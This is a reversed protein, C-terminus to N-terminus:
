NRVEWGISVEGTGPVLNIVFSGGQPVANIIRATSDNNRIVPFVTSNVSCLSCTVTVSSNGAAVNVTGFAKNITQNGTTGAPTITQDTFYQRVKVDRYAGATGNNAEIVGAANRGWATDVTGGAGAGAVTASSTWGYVGSSYLSLIASNSTFGLPYSVVGASTINVLALGGNVNSTRSDVQLGLGGIGTDQRTPTGGQSLFMNVGLVGMPTSSVEFKQLNLGGTSVAGSFNFKALGLRGTGIGAGLTVNLDGGDANGSANRAANGTTLAISGGAAAGAVSSGAVAASATLSAAIGAQATTIAAPATATFAAAVGAGTLLATNIAVSALNSLAANAGSASVTQWSGDDRLYKTGDPTGTIALKSIAISGALMANTVKGSGIATAFSGTGSGTVDGTLTITQDGTNSGSLSLDTKLQAISRSTWVGAKRQLIDDNTPTLAAIADLDSDWAQVNTGIVLGLNTRAASADTLDSLNSAKALKTAISNTVTTAFNPDDGLAAALEDLTDLAGPASNLLAAIAADVYARAAKQSAVKVDSNAALTIDTDLYSLPLQDVNSVNGLGVQSKTVSHPNSVNAIHSSLDSDDAPTFGLEAIIAESSLPAIAITM